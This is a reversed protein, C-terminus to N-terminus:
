FQSMSIALLLYISYEASDLEYRASEVLDNRYGLRASLSLSGQSEFDLRLYSEASEIANRASEFEEIMEEFGCAYVWPDLRSAIISLQNARVMQDVFQSFRRQEFAAEISEISRIQKKNTRDPKPIVKELGTPDGCDSAFSLIVVAASYVLPNM